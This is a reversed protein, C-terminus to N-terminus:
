FSSCPSSKKEKVTRQLLATARIHESILHFFFNWYTQFFIISFFLNYYSLSKQVYINQPWLSMAYSCINWHQFLWTHSMEICRGKSKQCNSLELFWSFAHCKSSYSPRIPHLSIHKKQKYLRWLRAKLSAIAVTIFMVQLSEKIYTDIHFGKKTDFLMSYLGRWKLVSMIAINLNDIWSPNSIPWHGMDVPRFMLPM